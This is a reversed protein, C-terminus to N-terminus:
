TDQKAHKSTTQKNKNADNKKQTPTNKHKPQNEPKQFHTEINHEAEEQTKNLTGGLGLLLCVCVTTLLVGEAM